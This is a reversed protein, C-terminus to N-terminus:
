LEEQEIQEVLIGQGVLNDIGKGCRYSEKYVVRSIGAAVIMESCTLCCSLTTYLTGGVVSVGEKAAKLLCNLEAHITHPKTVLSDDCMEELQNSGGPALGNYGALIVGHRTVVCAGVKAREGNSLRAHAEAVSMYCTDLDKQSAM